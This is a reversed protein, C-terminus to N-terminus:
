IGRLFDPDDDPGLPGRPSNGGRETLGKPRGAILWAIGGAPTFLLAMVVWALKPLNRVKDNDTRIVDVVCYVTFALLAIALLIRLM